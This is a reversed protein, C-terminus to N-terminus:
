VFPALDLPSEKIETITGLTDRTQLIEFQMLAEITEAYGIGGAKEAATRNTAASITNKFNYVDRITGFEGGWSGTAFGAPDLEQKGNVTIGILYNTTNRGEQPTYNYMERGLIGTNSILAARTGRMDTLLGTALLQLATPDSSAGTTLPSNPNAINIDSQACAALAAAAVAAAILKRIQTHTM